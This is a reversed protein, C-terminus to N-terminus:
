RVAGVAAQRGAGASSSAESIWCCSRATRLVMALSRWQRDWGLSAAARSSSAALPAPEAAARGAAPPRCGAGPLPPTLGAPGPPGASGGAAATSSGTAPSVAGSAADAAKKSTSSLWARASAARSLYWSSNPRLPPLSLLPSSLPRPDDASPGPCPRAAAPPSSAPAAQQVSTRVLSTAAPGPAHQPACAPPPPLLAAAGDDSLEAADAARCSCSPRARSSRSCGRTPPPLVISCALWRRPCSSAGGAAASAPCSFPQPRLLLRSAPACLSYLPLASGRPWATACAAGPPPPPPLLRAGAAAAPPLSNGAAEAPSPAPLSIRAASAIVLVPAAPRVAIAAAASLALVM